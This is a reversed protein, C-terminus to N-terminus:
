EYFSFPSSSIFSINNYINIKKAANISRTDIANGSVRQVDEFSTIVLRLSSLMGKMAPTMGDHVVINTRLTESM